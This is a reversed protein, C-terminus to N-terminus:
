RPHFGHNAPIMTQPAEEMLWHGAGVVVQSRVDSAVLKAQEILFGGSPKEGTLVLVPMALRSAGLQDFDQADREFKRFYEFGACKGGLQTPRRLSVAIPKRYRTNRMPPLTTGSTSSTPGSAGMFWHWRVNRHFHFNWLDRLLWVDKWNGIGPLFADMLVVRETAQPFQAAFAYAVM